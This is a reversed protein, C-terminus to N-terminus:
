ILPPLIIIKSGFWRWCPDQRRSCYQRVPHKSGVAPFLAARVIPKLGPHETIFEAIPPSVKYYFDVFAQGVPNTLLYEDRFERLIQIEEAMPTGYAATAIFCIGPSSPPEEVTLDFYDIKGSQWTATENALVGGVRFTVTTGPGPVLLDYRSQDDVATEAVKTDDLFAEVLTGEAAPKDDVSVTGIFSHPLPPPPEIAYAPTVGGAILLCLALLLGLAGALRGARRGRSMNGRTEEKM